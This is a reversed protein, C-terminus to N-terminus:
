QSKRVAYDVTQTERWYSLFELYTSPDIETEVCGPVSLRALLTSIKSADSVPEPLTNMEVSCYINRFMLKLIHSTASETLHHPFHTGVCSYRLSSLQFDHREIIKQLSPINLKLLGLGNTPSPSVFIVSGRPPGSNSNTGYTRQPCSAATKLAGLLTRCIVTNGDLSLFVFASPRTCTAHVLVDVMGHFTSIMCHAAAPTPSPRKVQLRRFDEVKVTWPCRIGLSLLALCGVLPRILPFIIFDSLIPVLSLADTVVLLLGTALFIPVRILGLLVSVVAIAYSALPSRRKTQVLEGPLFPNCGTASDAFKRYKEMKTWAPFLFNFAPLNGLLPALFALTRGELIERRM